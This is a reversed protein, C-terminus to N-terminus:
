FTGQTNLRSLYVHEPKITPDNAKFVFPIGKKVFTFGVSNFIETEEKNITNHKFGMARVIAAG